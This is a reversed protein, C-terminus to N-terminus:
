KTLVSIRNEPSTGSLGEGADAVSLGNIRFADGLVDVPINKKWGGHFHDAVLLMGGPALVQSLNSVIRRIEESRNIIPGGLLGNCVILDFRDNESCIKGDPITNLNTDRFLMSRNASAKFVPAVWTRFTAERLPNHPFVGHAAAWVELPDLTWGEIKFRDPHWGQELLLRALGYSAAGDGCAADLCRVRGGRRRLWEGIVAAQGPYRDSGDGYFREPMFSWFLIKKRLEADALLQEFLVAPNVFHRLFPPFRSVIGAWSAADAFPTSSLVPPYSLTQRYFHYFHPRLEDLPLWHECQYNIEHTVHVGYGAFPYPCSANCSSFLRQMVQIRREFTDTNFHPKILHSLTRSADGSDLSPTFGTM